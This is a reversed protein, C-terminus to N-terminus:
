AMDKELQIFRPRLDIPIWSVLPKLLPFKFPECYEVDVIRADSWFLLLESDAKKREDDLFRKPVNFIYVLVRALPIM